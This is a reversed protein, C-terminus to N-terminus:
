QSESTRPRNEDPAAGPRATDDRSKGVGTRYKRVRERVERLERPRWLVEIEKGSVKNVTVVVYGPRRIGTAIRVIRGTENTIENHVITGVSLKM